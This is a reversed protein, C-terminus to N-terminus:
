ELLHATGGGSGLSGGQPDSALFWSADLRERLAPAHTMAPPVSLLYQTTKM